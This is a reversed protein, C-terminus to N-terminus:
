AAVKEIKRVVGPVAVGAKGARTAMKAILDKVEDSDAFFALAKGHDEIVFTEIERLGTKRGRQGGAQVKVPEPPPPADPLEPGPTTLAAIPDDRMLKSRAAEAEARAIAIVKQEAEYKARAEAQLRADEANMWRTLEARITSAAADAEGILPKFKADVARGADLHPRKETEHATEAEKKLRLLEARYNAAKDSDTKTKIGSKKLWALAQAAYDKIQEALSVDGSNDGMAPADGPFSGTEFAHKADAKSIPDGACWTWVEFPDASSDSGVRCRLVGNDDYRIMVPLWQGGKGDRRKYFGCQPSNEDILRSEGALTDRWFQWIDM